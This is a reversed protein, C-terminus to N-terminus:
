IALVGRSVPGALNADSPVWRVVLRHGRKSKILLWTIYLQQLINYMRLTKGKGTSLIYYALASDTAITITTALHNHKATHILAVLAAAIEAFAIPRADSYQRYVYRPPPGPWYVGITSPTADAYVLTSRTPAALKRPQQLLQNRLMWRTWYTDRQMILTAIFMPWAMGWALWTLYGTISRLDQTTAQPVLALLEIQHQLCRTTPQIQQRFLNIELGLYVIRRTPVLHSKNPNITIGLQQLTQLVQPVPTEPAFLLWDDLYAVM